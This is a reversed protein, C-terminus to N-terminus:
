VAILLWFGRKIEEVLQEVTWTLGGACVFKGNWSIEFEQGARLGCWPMDNVPSLVTGNQLGLENDPFQLANVPLSITKFKCGKTACAISNGDSYLLFGCFPCESDTERWGSEIVIM